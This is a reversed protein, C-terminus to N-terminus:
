RIDECEPLDYRSNTLAVHDSQLDSLRREYFQKAERTQTGCSKVKLDFMESELISVRVEAVETRAKKVEALAQQAVHGNENVQTAVGFPAYRDDLQTTLIWWLGASIVVGLSVSARVFNVWSSFGHVTNLFNKIKEDNMDDRRLIWM